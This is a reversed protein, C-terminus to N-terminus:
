RSFDQALSTFLGLDAKQWKSVTVQKNEGKCPSCCRVTETTKYAFHEAKREGESQIKRSPPSGWAPQGLAWCCLVVISRHAAGQSSAGGAARSRCISRTSSSLSLHAGAVGSRGGSTGAAARRGSSAPVLRPEKCREVRLELALVWNLKPELLFHFNFAACAASLASNFVAQSWALSPTWLLPLLLPLQLGVAIERSQIILFFLM